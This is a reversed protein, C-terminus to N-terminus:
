FSGTSLARKRIMGCKKGKHCVIKLLNAKAQGFGWRGPTTYQVPIHAFILLDQALVRERLCVFACAASSFAM